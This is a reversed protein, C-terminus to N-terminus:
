RPEEEALPEGEGPAGFIPNGEGDTAGLVGAQQLTAAIAEPDLAFTTREVFRPRGDDWSVTVHV